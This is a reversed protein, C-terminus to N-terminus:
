HVHLAYGGLGVPLSRFPVPENSICVVVQM